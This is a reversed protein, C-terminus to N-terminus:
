PSDVVFPTVRGKQDLLWFSHHTGNREYHFAVRDEFVWPLHESWSDDTGLTRLEGRVGLLCLTGDDIIKADSVEQVQWGVPGRFQRVGSVPVLGKGPFAGVGGRSYAILWFDPEFKGLLATPKGMSGYRPLTRPNNGGAWVRGDSTLLASRSLDGPDLNCDVATILSSPIFQRWPYKEKVPKFSLVPETTDPSLHSLRGSEHLIMIGGDKLSIIRRPPLGANCDSISGCPTAAQTEDCLWLTGDKKLALIEGSREHRIIDVFSTDSNQKSDVHHIEKGSPLSFVTGKDNQFDKEFGAALFRDNWEELHLASVLFPSRSALPSFSTLDTEDFPRRERETFFSILETRGVLSSFVPTDVAWQRDLFSVIERYGGTDLLNSTNPVCNHAVIVAFLPLFLFYRHIKRPLSQVMACGLLISLMPLLPFIYRHSKYKGTSFFVLIIAAFLFLDRPRYSKSRIHWFLFPLALYLCAWPQVDRWFTELYFTWGATGGEIGKLYRAWAQQGLYENLFLEGFLHYQYLHWPLAVLVCTLGAVLLNKWHRWGNGAYITYLGLWLFLPAAAASKAMIALGAAAGVLASRRTTMRSPHCAALFAVLMWFTLPTELMGATGYLLFLRTTLLIGASIIGAYHGDISRGVLYCLAVLGCTYFFPIIRVALPSMGILKILVASPWFLGFPPKHFYPTGAEYPSLFNGNESMEAAVGAYIIEDAFIFHEPLLKASYSFVCLCVGALLIIAIVKNEKPETGLQEKASVFHKYFSLLMSEPLKRLSRNLLFSALLGPLLGIALFGFPNLILRYPSFLLLVAEVIALTCPFLAICWLLVRPHKLQEPRRFLLSGWLLFIGSWLLIFVFGASPSLTGEKLTSADRFVAYGLKKDYFGFNRIRVSTLAVKGIRSTEPFYVYESGSFVAEVRGRVKMYETGSIERGTEWSFEMEGDPTELFVPIEEIGKPVCVSLKVLYRGTPIDSLPYRVGPDLWSVPYDRSPLLNGRIFDKVGPKFHYSVAVVDATKFRVTRWCVVGLVM